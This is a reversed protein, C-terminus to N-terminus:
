TCMENLQFPARPLVENQVPVTPVISRPGQMRNAPVYAARVLVGRVVAQGRVEDSSLVVESPSRAYPRVPSVTALACPRSPTVFVAFNSAAVQVATLAYWRAWSM